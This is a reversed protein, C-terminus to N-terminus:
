VVVLGEALVLAQPFLALLWQLLPLPLPPLLPLPLPPLLAGTCTPLWLQWVTEVACM